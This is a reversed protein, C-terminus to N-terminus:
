VWEGRRRGSDDREEEKPPQIGELTTRELVDTMADIVREDPTM